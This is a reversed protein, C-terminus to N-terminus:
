SDRQRLFRDPLIKLLDVKLQLRAPVIRADANSGSHRQFRSQGDLQHISHQHMLCPTNVTLVEPEELLGKAKTTMGAFATIWTAPFSSSEEPNGRERSHRLSEAVDTTWKM